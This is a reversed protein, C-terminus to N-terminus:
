AEELIHANGPASPHLVHAGGSYHLVHARGGRVGVGPLILSTTIDYAVGTGTALGAFATSAKTTTPDYATGVAQALGATATSVPLAAPAFAIGTGTVTAVRPTVTTRQAQVAGTGTALTPNTAVRQATGFAVGTATALAAQAFTQSGTSILANFASGTATVTPAGLAVRQSSTQVTGIAAAQGATPAPNGDAATVAGTAAAQGATPKVQGAAGNAVGTGTAIQAQANIFSGTSVTANYATGTASVASDAILDLSVSGGTTDFFATGTGSATPPGPKVAPTASPSTGTATATPSGTAVTSTPNYATGTAAAVSALANTSGSSTTSVTADNATGTASATGPGTSVLSTTSNATGTGSPQQAGPSVLSTSTYATSTGSALGADAHHSTFNVTLAVSDVSEAITTPAHGFVRVRLTSLQSFTVGTFDHTDTHDSTGTTGTQTTGIQATTGDWLQYTPASGTAAVHHTLSVRVYNITDVSAVGAFSGFSSLELGPSDLITVPAPRVAILLASNRANSLDVTFVGVNESAANLQRFAVAAMSQGVTSTDATASSAFDTYNTPAATVGTWSGTGSTEGSAGVAIWLTDEAAWGAPDFAAPDAAATTGNAIAGGEPPTTAHAGPISLLMMSAHGTITAAQTVSITGTESGTSWKYAAGIAMGTTTSQDLFETWGATWGSWVANATASSQYAVVIAILLDGSNKTLGTLSPFTRTATTDAQNNSLVRGAAVTPVTPFAM